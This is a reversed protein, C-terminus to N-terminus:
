DQPARLADQRLLTDIITLFKTELGRTYERKRRGASLQLSLGDVMAIMLTARHLSDAPTIAPNQARVLKAVGRTLNEYWDDLLRSCEDDIAALSIFHWLLATTESSRSDRLGRELLMIITERPATGSGLARELDRLYVEIVPEVVARLVALRSPFYYQLNSISIGARTAVERLSFELSGGELLLKRAARIIANRTRQGQARLGSRVPEAAPTEAKARRKRGTSQQTTDTM